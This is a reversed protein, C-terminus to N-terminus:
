SCCRCSGRRGRISRRPAYVNLYLCDENDIRPGNGNALQACRGGYSPPPPDRGARRRSRRSGACRESRRHRTPCAWSSISGRPTSARSLGRDTAVILGAAAQRPRAGAQRPRRRRRRGLRRSGRDGADRRGARARGRDQRASM